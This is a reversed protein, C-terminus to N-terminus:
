SSLSSWRYMSVILEAGRFGFAFEGPKIEIDTPEVPAMLIDAVEKVFPQTSLGHYSKSWDTSSGDGMVEVAIEPTEVVTNVENETAKVVEPTDAGPVTAYRAVATRLIPTHVKASLLSYPSRGFGKVASRALFM